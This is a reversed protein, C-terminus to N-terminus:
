LFIKKSLKKLEAYTYIEAGCYNGCLGAEYIRELEGRIKYLKAPNAGNLCEQYFMERLENEKKFISVTNKLKEIELEPVKKKVQERYGDEIM